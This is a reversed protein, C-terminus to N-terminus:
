SEEQAIEEAGSFEQAGSGGQRVEDQLKSHPPEGGSEVSGAGGVFQLEEEGKQLVGRRQRGECM